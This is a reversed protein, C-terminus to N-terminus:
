RGFLGAAQNFLPVQYNGTPIGFAEGVTAAGRYFATAGTAFVNAGQAALSQFEGGNGQPVGPQPSLAHGHNIPIERPGSPVRNFRGMPDVGGMPNSMDPLDPPPSKTMTSGFIEDLDSNKLNKIENLSPATEAQCFGVIIAFIVALVQFIIPLNIMTIKKNM